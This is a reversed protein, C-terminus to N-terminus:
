AAEGRPVDLNDGPRLIRVRMGFMTATITGLHSIIDGQPQFGIAVEYCFSDMRWKADERARMYVKALTFTVIEKQEDIEVEDIPGRWERSSHLDFQVLDRGRLDLVLLEDITIAQM